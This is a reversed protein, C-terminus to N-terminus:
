KSSDRFPAEQLEKMIEDVNVKIGRAACAEALTAAIRWRLALRIAPNLPFEQVQRTHRAPARPFTM